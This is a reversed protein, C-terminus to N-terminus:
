LGSRRVSPTTLPARITLRVEFVVFIRTFLEVLSRRCDNAYVFNEQWM